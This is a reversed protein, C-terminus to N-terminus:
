LAERAGENQRKRPWRGSMEHGDSRGLTERRDGENESKTNAQGTRHGFRATRLHPGLRGTGEEGVRILYPSSSASLVSFCLPYPM